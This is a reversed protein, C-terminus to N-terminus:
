THRFFLHINSFYRLYHAAGNINLELRTKHRRNIISQYNLGSLFTTQVSLNLLMKAAEDFIEEASPSMEFDEFALEWPWIVTARTTLDDILETVPLITLTQAHQSAVSFFRTYVVGFYGIEGNEYKATIDDAIERCQNHDPVEDFDDYFKKVELERFKLFSLVKKGAAYIELKKNFRKARKIHVDLLRYLNSNYGGCLGRDTGIILVAMTDSENNEALTHKIPEEATILLYALQALSDFYGISGAWNDYYQKYRSTSIMEMTRTVKCINSVANKRGLLQRMGAL